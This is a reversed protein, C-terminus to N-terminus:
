IIIECPTEIGSTNSVDISTIVYSNEKQCMKESTHGSRCIPSSFWKKTTTFWRERERKKQFSFLVEHNGTISKCFFFSWQEDYLKIQIRWEWKKGESEELSIQQVDHHDHKHDEWWFNFKRSTVKRKFIVVTIFIIMILLFLLFFSFWGIWDTFQAWLEDRERERMRRMVVQNRERCICCVSFFEIMTMLCVIWVVHQHTARSDTLVVFSASYMCM